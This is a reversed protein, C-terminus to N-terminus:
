QISEQSKPASNLPTRWVMWGGLAAAVSLELGWFLEPWPARFDGLPSYRFRLYEEFNPRLEKRREEYNAAIAEDKESIKELMKLIALQEPNDALEADRAARLQQFSSWALQTGGIVLSAVGIVPLWVSRRVQFERALRGILLGGAIGYISYTLGLRRMPPPAYALALALATGAMLSTLMWILFRPVANLQQM